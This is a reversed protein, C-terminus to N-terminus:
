HRVALNLYEDLVANKLTVVESGPHRQAGEKMIEVLEELLVKKEEFTLLGRRVWALTQSGLIHYAHHNKEGRRLIDAKLQVRAQEVFTKADLSSVQDLARRFLLHSYTCAVYPDDPALAQAQDLFNQALKPYGDELELSGRQLWFHHDNRLVTEIPPM